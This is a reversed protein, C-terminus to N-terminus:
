FQELMWDQQMEKLIHKLFLDKKEQQQKERVFTALCRVNNSHAHFSIFLYHHLTCVRTYLKLSLLLLTNLLMM